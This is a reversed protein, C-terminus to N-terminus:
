FTYGIRFHIDAALEGTKVTPKTADDLFLLYGIGLAIEYNLNTRGIDRRIGYKPMFAIQQPVYDDDDGGRVKFVADYYTVAVTAFNASNNRTRKNLRARKEINYYWRPEVTLNPTFYGESIRSYLNTALGAETRLAFQNSIRAEYSVYGGVIGVQINVLSRVTPLPQTILSDQAYTSFGCFATLAIIFCRLKKM